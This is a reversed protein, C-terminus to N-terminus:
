MKKVMISVVGSMLGVNDNGIVYRAKYDWEAVATAAPLNAIDIYNFKLLRNILVFGAGDKRDVYLDLADVGNKLCRIRPRGADMKVTLVPQLTTTDTVSTPAIIGLDQGMNNTYNVSAKIRQILKALRDFMGEAVTAPANGLVPMVPLVGLHQQGVVHKLLNKYEIINHTTQKFVEQMNIVYQFIAADNQVSTVEDSTIGTLAAYTGLKNSFNNTWVALDSDSVPWFGNKNM